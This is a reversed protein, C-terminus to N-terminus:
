PRQSAEELRLNLSYLDLSFTDSSFDETSIHPFCRGYKLVTFPTLSSSIDKIGISTPLVLFAVTSNKAPSDYSLWELDPASNGAFDVLQFKPLLEMGALLFRPPMYTKVYILPVKGILEPSLKNSEDFNCYSTLWM